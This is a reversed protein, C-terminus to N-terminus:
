LHTASWVFMMSLIMWVPIREAASADPVEAVIESTEEPNSKEEVKPTNTQQFYRFYEEYLYVNDTDECREVLNPSIEACDLVKKGNSCASCTEACDLGGIQMQYPCPDNCFSRGFYYDALFPDTLECESIGYVEHLSGQIEDPATFIETVDSYVLASQTFNLYGRENSCYGTSASLLRGSRAVGEADLLDNYCTEEGEMFIYWHADINGGCRVEVNDAFTLGTCFEWLPCTKNM